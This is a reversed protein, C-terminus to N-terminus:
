PQLQALDRTVAAAVQEQGRALARERAQRLVAIARPTNGARALTAGLAYLYAPTAEDDVEVVREFEAIAEAYRGQNARIRGLHFRALRLDPQLDIAKRFHGAARDLKGEQQLLSGMNNHAEAHAPNITLARSFAAEAAARRNTRYCLVGFNYHANDSNPELAIAARYHKEAAAANGLRAYLSILNVHAQTLEPDLALAQHQLDVATTLDGHAEARSAERLLRDPGRNLARVAELLPDEVPPATLKHREYDNMLREAAEPRGSRRHHQALAFIAAGYQPFARLAKEYFAADNAARGYHFWAAPHEIGALVTKAAASDGSALLAEGLKIKAPLYDRLRLAERFAVAAAPGDSVLGLYYRWEFSEPNLASARRYCAAAAERQDHAHLTMGLLGAKAADHPAAKAGAVAADVADRIAPTFSATSV